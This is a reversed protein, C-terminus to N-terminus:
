MAFNGGLLKETVQMLLVDFLASASTPRTGMAGAEIGEQLVEAILGDFRILPIPCLPAPLPVLM